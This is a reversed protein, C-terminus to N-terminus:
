GAAARREINSGRSVARAGGLRLALKVVRWPQVPLARRLHDASTRADGWRTLVQEAAFLNWEAEAERELRTRRLEPHREFYREVVRRYGHIGAALDQSSMAEHTRYHTAVVRDGRVEAHELARLVFDWDESVTLSREWPGTADVIRRHFLLSHISVEFRNLLCATVASGQVSSSIQTLGRLDRDCVLTAGYTIVDDDDRMLELLHATSSETIVDDCDIFRIHSGRASALGTNRASSAGLHDTRVITLRPDHESELLEAVPEDSGDDVLVLEVPCGRQGLASSVAQLLWDPRPNWAPMVLSVLPDTSGSTGHAM